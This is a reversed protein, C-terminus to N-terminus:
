VLLGAVKVCAKNLYNTISKIWHACVSWHHCKGVKQTKSDWVSDKGAWALADSPNLPQMTASHVTEALTVCGNHWAKVKIEGLVVVDLSMQSKQTKTAWCQTLFLSWNWMATQVFSTNATEYCFWVLSTHEPNPHTNSPTLAKINVDWQKIPMHITPNSNLHM